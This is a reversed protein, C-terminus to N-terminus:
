RLLHPCTVHASQDIRVTPKPTFRARRELRTVRIGSCIVIGIMQGDKLIAVDVAMAVAMAFKCKVFPLVLHFLIESGIANQIM